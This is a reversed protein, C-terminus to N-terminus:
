FIPNYNLPICIKAYFLNLCNRGDYTINFREEGDKGETKYILNSEVLKYLYDKCDIYSIWNNISYCIDFITNETTEGCLMWLCKPRVACLGNPLDVVYCDNTEKRIRGKYVRGQEPEKLQVLDGRNM